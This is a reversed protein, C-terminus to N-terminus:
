QLEILEITGITIYHQNVLFHSDNTTTAPPGFSRSYGLVRQLQNFIPKGYAVGEFCIFALPLNEWKRMSLELSDKSPIHPITASRL